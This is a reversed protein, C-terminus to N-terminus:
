NVNVQITISFFSILAGGVVRSYAGGKVLREPGLIWVKFYTGWLHKNLSKHYICIIIYVCVKVDFLDIEGQETEKFM